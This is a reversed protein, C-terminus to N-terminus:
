EEFGYLRIKEILTKRAIGLVEAARTKNNGTRRLVMAIFSREVEKLNLESPEDQGSWQDRFLHRTTITDGRCSIVAGEIVNVMERVNGEWEHDMLALLAENSIGEINKHM